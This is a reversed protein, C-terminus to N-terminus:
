NLERKRRRRIGGREGVELTTPEEPAASAPTANERCWGQMAEFQERMRRSLPRIGSLATEMHGITVNEGESYALLRAESCIAELEAGVYQDTARVIDQLHEVSDPDINRKRLHVKLIELREQNNPTDVGFVQDLRGTRLFEAPVNQTRNLTPVWFVPKKTEQMFTLLTGLVKQSTGGDGGSDTSIAKDIEDLLVVCPALSEIMSLATRMNAESSGVLGSFVSAIDFRITAVGLVTGIVKGCLSKGTGPPGVLACGRPKDVGAEWAEPSMAVRRAQIWDKLNELGGVEDLSVHDMVELSNSRRVMNAKEHLMAPRLNDKTIREGENTLQSVVRSLAGAYEPLIMGVGAQAVEQMDREPLQRVLRPSLAHYDEIVAETSAILETVDPPLHDIVPILEQLEAPFEYHPPICIVVRRKRLTLNHAMLVLLAQMGPHPADSKVMLNLGMYVFVGNLPFRDGKTDEPALLNRFTTPPDLDDANGRSVGTVPDDEKIFGRAADWIRVPRKTSSCFLSVEEAAAMPDRTRVALVGVGSKTYRMLQEAFVNSM